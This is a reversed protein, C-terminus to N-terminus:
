YHISCEARISAKVKDKAVLNNKEIEDHDRGSVTGSYKVVERPDEVSPVSVTCDGNVELLEFTYRSYRVAVMFFSYGLSQRAIRM